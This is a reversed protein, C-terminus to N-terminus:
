KIRYIERTLDYLEQTRNELRYYYVIYFSELVTLILAVIGILWTTLDAGSATEAQAAVTAFWAAFAIWSSFMLIAFFLTVILHILREHQFNKTQFDHFQALNQAAIQRSDADAIKAVRAIEAQVFKKHSLIQKDMFFNYCLVRHVIFCRM